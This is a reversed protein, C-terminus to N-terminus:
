ARAIFAAGQASTTGNPLIVYFGRPVGPSQEENDRHQWLIVDTMGLATTTDVIRDILGATDLNLAIFWAEVEPYGFEGVYTPVPARGANRYVAQVLDFARRLRRDIEAESAAQDNAFLTLIAEYSSFGVVDPLVLPLVDRHVRPGFDDLVLNLEMGHLVSASSVVRARAEEVARQRESFFAAMQDRRYPPVTFQRAAESATGIYAWDLESGQLIFTKGPYTALFHEALERIEAREAALNAVAEGGSNPAVAQTWPNNIGNAFTWVNLVFRTLRPDGFVAAFAPDSALQTLTTHTGSWSQLPYEIQYAPSLHLKISHFGEDAIEDADGGVTRPGYDPAVHAVGLYTTM